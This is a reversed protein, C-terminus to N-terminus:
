GVSRSDLRKLFRLAALFFSAWTEVVCLVGAQLGKLTYTRCAHTRVGHGLM